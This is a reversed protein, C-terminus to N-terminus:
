ELFTEEGEKKVNLNRNGYELGKKRDKAKGLDQPPKRRGRWPVNGLLLILSWSSRSLIISRDV